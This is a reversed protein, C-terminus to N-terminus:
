YFRIEEIRKKAGTNVVAAFPRCVREGSQLSCATSSMRYRDHTLSVIDWKYTFEPRKLGSQQRINQLVADKATELRLSLTFDDAFKDARPRVENKLFSDLFFLTGAALIAFGALKLMDSRFHPNRFMGEM